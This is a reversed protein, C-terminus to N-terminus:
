KGETKLLNKYWQHNRCLIMTSVDEKPLRLTSSSPLASGPAFGPQEPDGWPGVPELVGGQRATPSPCPHPTLFAGPIPPLRAGAQISLSQSRRHVSMWCEHSGIDVVRLGEAMDGGM